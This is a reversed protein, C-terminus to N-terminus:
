SNRKKLLKLLLIIVILVALILFVIVITLINNNEKIIEIDFSKGVSLRFNVTEGTQIGGSIPKFIIKANYIEGGGANNPVSIKVPINKTENAVLQITRGEPFSIYEEGQEIVVEITIQEVPQIINQLQFNGEYTEGKKLEIKYPFGVAFGASALNSLIISIIFISAIFLNVKNKM